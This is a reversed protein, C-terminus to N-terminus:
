THLNSFLYRQKFQSSAGDSFIQITEIGTYKEKLLTLILTLFKHVALKDHKLDDSIIVFSETITDRDRICMESGM